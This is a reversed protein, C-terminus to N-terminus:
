LGRGMPMPRSSSVAANMSGSSFSSTTPLPAIVTTSGDSISYEDISEALRWSGTHRILM